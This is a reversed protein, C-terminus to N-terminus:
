KPLKGKSDMLLVLGIGVAGVIGLFLPSTFFRSPHFTGGEFSGNTLDTSVVAGLGLGSLLILLAATTVQPYIMGPAAPPDFRGAVTVCIRWLEQPDIQQEIEFALLNSMGLGTLATELQAGIADCDLNVPAAFTACLRQAETQDTITPNVWAFCAQFAM